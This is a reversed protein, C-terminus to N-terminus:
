IYFTKKYSRSEKNGYTFAYFSSTVSNVMYFNDIKARAYHLVSWSVKEAKALEKVYTLLGTRLIDYSSLKRCHQMRKLTANIENWVTFYLRRKDDLMDNDINALTKLSVHHWNPNQIAKIQNYLKKCEHIFNKHAKICSDSKYNYNCHVFPSVICCTNLNPCRNISEIKAIITKNPQLSDTDFYQNVETASQVTEETEETEETETTETETTRFKLYIYWVGESVEEVGFTYDGTYHNDYVSKDIFCNNECCEKICELWFYVDEYNAFIKMARRIATKWSKCYTTFDISCYTEDQIMTPVLENYGESNVYNGYDDFTIFEKVKM